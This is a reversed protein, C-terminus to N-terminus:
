SLTLGCGYLARRDRYLHRARHELGCQIDKVNGTLAYRKWQEFIQPLDNWVVENGAEDVMTMGSADKKYLPNGRRDHGVAESVVM